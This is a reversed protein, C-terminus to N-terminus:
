LTKKQVNTERTDLGSCPRMDFYTVCTLYLCSLGVYMKFWCSSYFTLYTFISTLGLVVSCNAVCKITSLEAETGQDPFHGHVIFDSLLKDKIIFENMLWAATETESSPIETLPIRRVHMHVEAPGVGFVNDLFSPCRNKYAITVM